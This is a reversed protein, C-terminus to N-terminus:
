CGIIYFALNKQKMLSSHHIQSNKEIAHHLKISVEQLIDDVILDNKVKSAIFRKLSAKHGNWIKNFNMKDFVLPCHCINNEQLFIKPKSIPGILDLM